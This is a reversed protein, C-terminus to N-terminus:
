SRPGSRGSRSGGPRRGPRAPAPERSAHPPRAAGRPGAATPAEAPPGRRPVGSPGRPAVRAAPTDRSAGRPAGRPSEVRAGGGRSAGAPRPPAGAAAGGLAAIEAHTLARMRGPPLGECTLGAFSVRALRMVPFGAAEGLRHIQRNKGERLTIELWTKDGEVRLVKVEAPQTPRGDVEISSRLRELGAAGVIGAVKAVYVKPSASRPHLLRAALAGDNTLLLAGSTHFDLRGVPVVRSDLGTLYEAVTPRGAPDSMTSVVNRPKHFLVYLLQEALVPRGDVLVRAREPDVRVGLETVRQGDVTVRGSAILEEARRRSAVGGRALVKQLRELPM